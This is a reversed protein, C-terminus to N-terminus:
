RFFRMVRLLEEAMAALISNIDTLILGDAGISYRRSCLRKALLSACNSFEGSRNDMVIFDNASASLKSFPIRDPLQTISELHDPNM